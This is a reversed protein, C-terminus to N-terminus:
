KTSLFNITVRISKGCAIVSRKGNREEINWDMELQKPQLRERLDPKEISDMAEVEFHTGTNDM